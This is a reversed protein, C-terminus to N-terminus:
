MELNNDNRPPLPKMKRPPRSALWAMVESEVWAVKCTKGGPGIERALPFLGRKMWTYVTAPSVGILKLLEPKYILRITSHNPSKM